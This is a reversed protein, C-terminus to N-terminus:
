NQHDHGCHCDGDEHDHGCHCDGDEHDHGCHCDHDDGDHHHGCCCDDGCDDEEDDDFDGDELGEYDEGELFPETNPNIYSDIEEHSEVMTELLITDRDRPVLFFGAIEAPVLITEGKKFEYNEMCKENRENVSPIQISAAGEICTYILFCGLHELNM